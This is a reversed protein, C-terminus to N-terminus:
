RVEAPQVLKLTTSASRDNTDIVEIHFDYTNPVGEVLRNLEYLINCFMSAIEFRTATQGKVEAGVKFGVTEHLFDAADPDEVDITCLDFQGLLIPLNTAELLPRLAESDITVLLSQIGAPAAIDVAIEMDKALVNAATLDHGEWVITPEEAKSKDVALTLAAQTTLTNGDTMTFSFTHTGNFEYLLPMQETIDFQMATKGLLEDGMPFKFIEHLWYYAPHDPNMTCLDFEAPIKMGTMSQMFETNDSSIAVVFSRIGNPSALDFTFYGPKDLMDSTLEVPQGLDHGPWVITPATPDVDPEEEYIYEWADQTGDVVIEEDQVFNDVQIDFKIDGKDAYSIVLTIKRWQGAKVNRITKSFQVDDGEAFQGKLLFELTNLEEAARFYLARSEGVAFQESADGLSVKARTTERNLKDVIDASWNLTVKINTLTCTIKGLQETEGKRISFDHTTGYTPSEWAVDPIQQTSRVEMRYAGVPLELPTQELEAKLEGYTKTLVSANAADFIEVIFDDPAPRTQARTLSLASPRQTEDDTDDPKTDTQEDYVVNLSMEGLELYGVNEAPEGPKQGKYAPDENMCGAAFLASAALFTPILNFHKM